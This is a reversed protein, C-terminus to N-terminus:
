KGAGKPPAVLKEIVGDLETWHAGCRVVKSDGSVVISVPLTFVGLGLALNSELGGEEHVSIWPYPNAKLFARADDPNNDVNIGVIRVNQKAYKSQLEKLARMEAKCPECWSAWYHYIIPSGAYAKSDFASGDLKKAAVNFSKGVLNLRTLAGAAKKGPITSPFAVRSRDYWLQAERFDGALEAAMGIQNMAEAADDSKPFAKVFAELEALFDKQAKAFDVGPKQIELTNRTVVARFEVYALDNETVDITKLKAPMETLREAGQPYEGTQAAASVTDAFQKIWDSRNEPKEEASILKELLDARESHLRSKEEGTAANIKDDIEQLSTALREVNKSLTNGSMTGSSLQGRNSFSGNFFMGSDSMVAGETVVRPLDVVRWVSGVQILTGVILQQSKGGTELLAVVNEYVVVDKESGDTGAPVIGPKEAGFHTWRSDRGVVSQGASWKEFTASADKVKQSLVDLKEKSLGLSALEAPTALLTAFRKSDRNAAAKVVEATAEEASIMKWTDIKAEKDKDADVGWRLGGTGLWRFEDATGDFNTDMERYTEVGQAFYCWRDLRKDGNTDVFWRLTQGNESSVLFGKGEDRTVQEIACSAVKDAAVQDYMVDDQRPKYSLAKVLEDSQAWALPNVWGSAAAGLITGLIWRRTRISM